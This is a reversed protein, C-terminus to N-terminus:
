TPSTSYGASGCIAPAGHLYWTFQKVADRSGAQQRHAAAADIPYICSSPGVCELCNEVEGRRLANIGLYGYLEVKLHEGYWLAECLKLGRELWAAAQDHEGEQMYYCALSRVIPIAKTAEDPTPPSHLHLQDYQNRVASIGRKGRMRVAERLQGLSRRDKIPGTYNYADAALQYDYPLRDVFVRRPAAPTM